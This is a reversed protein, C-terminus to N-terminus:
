EGRVQIQNTIQRVGPVQATLREARTREEKSNVFGSLQVNDKYTEVQIETGSVKDDQLLKTKVRTTIAASDVSEGFSEEKPGGACSSLSILLVTLLSMTLAKM